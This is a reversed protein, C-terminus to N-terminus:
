SAQPFWWEPTLVSLTKILDERDHRGSTLWLFVPGVFGTGILSALLQPDFEPLPPPLTLRADLYMRVISTFHTALVYMGTGDDPATFSFTYIARHREIHDLALNLTALFADRPEAEALSSLATTRAQTLDQTLAERLAEGPTLYHKYFTVRNIDAAVALESVTIETAPKTAALQLVAAHLSARTRVIRADTM